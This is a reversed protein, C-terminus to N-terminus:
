HHGSALTWPEIQIEGADLVASTLHHIVTSDLRDTAVEEHFYALTKGVEHIRHALHPDIGTHVALMVPDDCARVARVVGDRADDVLWAAPGPLGPLSALPVNTRINRRGAARRLRPEPAVLTLLRSRGGTIRHVRLEGGPGLRYVQLSDGLIAAIWAGNFSRQRPLVALTVERPAAGQLVHKGRHLERRSARASVRAVQVCAIATAVLLGHDIASGTSEFFWWCAALLAGQVSVAIYRVELQLLQHRVPDDARRSAASKLATAIVAFAPECACLAAGAGIWGAGASSVALGVTGAIALAAAARMVRIPSRAAGRAPGRALLAAFVRPANALIGTITPGAGLLAPISYVQQWVGYLYASAVLGGAADPAGAILSRVSRVQEPRSEPPVGFRTQVLAFVVLLSALGELALRWGVTSAAVTLGVGVAVGALAACISLRASVHEPSPARDGQDQHRQSAIALVNAQVVYTISTGAGVLGMCGLVVAVFEPGLSAPAVAIGGLGAAALLWRAVVGGRHPMGGRRALRWLSVGVMFSAAQTAGLLVVRSVDVERAISSLALVPAYVSWSLLASGAGSVFVDLASPHPTRRRWRLSRWSAM